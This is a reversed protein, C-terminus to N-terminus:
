RRSAEWSRIPKLLHPAQKSNQPAATFLFDVVTSSAIPLLALFILTTSTLIKQM